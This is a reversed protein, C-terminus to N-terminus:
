DISKTAQSHYHPLSATQWANQINKLVPWVTSENPFSAFLYREAIVHEFENDPIPTPMITLTDVLSTHRVSFLENITIFCLLSWVFTSWM